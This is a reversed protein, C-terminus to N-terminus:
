QKELSRIFTLVEQGHTSVDVDPYIKRIIGSRDIVFTVRKAKGFFNKIDYRETVTKDTDALLTFPLRHKERFKKHSSVSDVSIGLIVAGANKFDQNLDRFSCAQKTCGPTDDMPYFYLVVISDQWVNSLTVDIGDQQKLTFDPARDGEKLAAARATGWLATLLLLPLACYMIQAYKM